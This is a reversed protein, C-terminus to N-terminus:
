RPDFFGHPRRRRRCAQTSISGERFATKDPLCRAETLCGARVSEPETRRPSPWDMGEGAFRVDRLSMPPDATGGARRWLAAMALPVAVRIM